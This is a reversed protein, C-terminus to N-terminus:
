VVSKRDSTFTKLPIDLLRANDAIRDANEKNYGPNMCIFQASFAIDSHRLLEQMLKALLFSDKGGSVCVAINDGEEILNYKKVAELFRSWIPKRFKTIVSREIKQLPTLEKM